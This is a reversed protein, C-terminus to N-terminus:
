QGIKTAVLIIGVAISILAIVISVNIYHKKTPAGSIVEKFSEKIKQM